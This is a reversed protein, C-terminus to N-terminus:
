KRMSFALVMLSIALIWSGIVRIGVKAWQKGAANSACMALYLVAANVSLWTGLLIKVVSWGSGTEVGSDLGIVIAAAACLLGVVGRPLKAALGVLIGLGMALGILAAQPVAITKGIATLALAIALVPTFVRLPMKLDFPERQALLLALPLFVLVQAPTVWPHLAGNGLDGAGEVIMHAHATSTLALPLLVLVCRAIRPPKSIM